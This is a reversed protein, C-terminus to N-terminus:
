SSLPPKPAAKRAIMGDNLRELLNARATWSAASREMRMRENVNIMAVSALLDSEARSRCGAATDHPAKTTRAIPRTPDIM